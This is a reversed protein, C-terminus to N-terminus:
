VPQGKVQSLTISKACACESYVYPKNETIILLVSRSQFDVSKIDTNVHVSVFVFQPICYTPCM